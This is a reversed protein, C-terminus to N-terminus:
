KGDARRLEMRIFYRVNAPSRGSRDLLAHLVRAAPGNPTQDFTLSHGDFVQHVMSAVRQELVSSTPEQWKSASRHTSDIALLLRLLNEQLLPDQGAKSPFLFDCHSHQRLLALTSEDCRHLARSLKEAPEKLTALAALVESPRPENTEAILGMLHEIERVVIELVGRNIILARRIKPISFPQAFHARHRYDRRQKPRPMENAPM